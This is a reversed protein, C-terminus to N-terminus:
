KKIELESTTRDIRAITVDAWKGTLVNTATGIGYGMTVILSPTGAFTGNGFGLTIIASPSGDM